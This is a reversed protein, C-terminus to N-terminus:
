LLLQCEVMKWANAIRWVANAILFWRSSTGFATTLPELLGAMFSYPNKRTTVFYILSLTFLSHIILGSIVTLTYMGIERGIEGPDTMNVVQGAMLFITGVPSYRHYALSVCLLPPANVSDWHLPFWHTYWITHFLVCWLPVRIIMLPTFAILRQCAFVM